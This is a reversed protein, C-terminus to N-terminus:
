TTKEHKIQLRVLYETTDEELRKDATTEFGNRRYFAIARTNKELAWLEHAGCANVAYKLLAAGIGQGQLVPEVFLKQLEGAAIRVFGKVVGDDYVYTAELLAPADAYQRMLNPVTLEDFYFEDCRFIPYFNLRYNFVEIEALRAADNATAKRIM